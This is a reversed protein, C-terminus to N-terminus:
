RMVEFEVMTAKVACWLRRKEEMRRERESELLNLIREKMPHDSQLAADLVAGARAKELDSGLIMCYGVSDDLRLLAESVLVEGLNFNSSSVSDKARAMIMGTQARLVEVSYGQVIEEALSCIKERDSLAIIEFAEERNM